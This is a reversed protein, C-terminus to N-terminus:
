NRHDSWFRRWQDPESLFLARLHCLGDAGDDGWRMGSGKLRDGVVTRCASEIPGSGIQWGNALYRPYDMKHAHNAFYQVTERYLEKTTAVDGPDIAALEAHVVTGGEHKLKHCMQDMWLKRSDDDFLAKGLDLLHEKVHWFDIIIEALPFNRRIFQEMGNGGDSLGIQQEAQDWGVQGAQHRLQIGLEDLDYFGALYRVQHPEPRREDHDSDPNYISAVYAMRSEIRAGNKGQRRVGTADLSIYACTRGQADRQWDWLRSKGFRIRQGLVQGVRTGADETTREVTSESIRLGTMRRLMLEASKEFSSSVGALSAVEAVAPTLMRETLGLQRDWPCTGAHCDACHYYPRKVRVDGFLCM